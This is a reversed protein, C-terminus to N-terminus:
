TPSLLLVLRAEDGAGNFATKFQDLNNRTLSTLQPQGPPTGKSAWLYWVVLFAAIIGIVWLGYKINRLRM